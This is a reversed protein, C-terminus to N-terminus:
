YCLISDTQFWKHSNIGFSYSVHIIIDKNHDDEVRTEIYLKSNPWIYKRIKNITVMEQSFTM